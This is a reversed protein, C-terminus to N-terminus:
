TACELDLTQSLDAGGHPQTATLSNENHPRMFALMPVTDILILSKPYFFGEPFLFALVGRCFFQWLAPELRERENGGGFFTKREEPKAECGAPLRRLSPPFSAVVACIDCPFASDLLGDLNM